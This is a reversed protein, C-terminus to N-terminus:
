AVRVGRRIRYVWLLPQPWCATLRACAALVWSGRDVAITRLVRAAAAADSRQLSARLEARPLERGFRALQEHVVSREEARDDLMTDIHRLVHMVGRIMQPEDSSLSDDRRRYFAHPEFSRLIKFGALSARLWFDYDENRLLTTTFGGIADSVERRFMSMICVADEHRILDHLTLPEVGTTRPWLPKGDFAPSGGRNLANTTVIAADPHADFLALQAELYDPALQDDSDLLVIFRGLAARMALNRAVAQGSNPISLVRIRPDGVALHRAVPLTDDTSGDNVIVLEFNSFTQGLVSSATEPLYRAANFAPTIVSVLPTGKGTM